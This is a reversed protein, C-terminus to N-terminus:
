SRDGLENFHAAVEGSFSPNQLGMIARKQWENIGERPNLNESDHNYIYATDPRTRGLEPGPQIRRHFVPVFAAFSAEGAANDTTRGSRRVIRASGETGFPIIKRGTAWTSRIWLIYLRLHKDKM